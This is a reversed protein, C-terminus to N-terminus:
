FVQKNAESYVATNNTRVCVGDNQLYYYCSLLDKSKNYASYNGVLDKTDDNEIYDFINKKDKLSNDSDNDSRQVRRHKSFQKRCILPM